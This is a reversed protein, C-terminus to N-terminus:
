RNPVLLDDVMDLELLTTISSCSENRMAQTLAAINTTTLTLPAFKLWTERDPWQAYAIWKTEQQTVKHLRSGLGGYNDKVIQTISHWQQKFKDEMGPIVNFEYVVCFM